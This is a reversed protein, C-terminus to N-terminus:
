KRRFQRDSFREKVQGAKAWLGSLFKIAKGISTKSLMKLLRSLPLSLDANLIERYDRLDKLRVLIVSDEPLGHTENVGNLRLIPTTSQPNQSKLIEYNFDSHTLEKRGSLRINIKQAM